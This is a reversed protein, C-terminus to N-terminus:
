PFSMAVVMFSAWLKVWLLAGLRRFASRYRARRGHDHRGPPRRSYISAADALWCDSVQAIHAM